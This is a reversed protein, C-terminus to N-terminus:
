RLEKLFSLIGATVRKWDFRLSAQRANRALTLRLKADGLLRSVAAAFADPNYQEVVLASLNNHLYEDIGPIQATVIPTGSAMAELLVNPFGENFVTPYVFVDAANYYEQIEAHPVQGLHLVRSAYQPPLKLAYSEKGLIALKAGPYKDFVVPLARELIPAGKPASFGGAFLLLPGSVGLKGKLASKRPSFVHTDVGTCPIHAPINAGYAEKFGEAIAGSQCLLATAANVCRRELREQIKFDLSILAKKLPNTHVYGESWLRRWMAFEWAVPGSASRYAMKQGIGALAAYSIGLVVDPALGAIREQARRAFRPYDRIRRLIRSRTMPIRIFRVGERLEDSKEGQELTSLVTVQHGQKAAERSFQRIFTIIGGGGERVHPFPIVLHM